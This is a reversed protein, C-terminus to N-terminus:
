NGLMLVYHPSCIKGTVSLSYEAAIPDTSDYCNSGGPNGGVHIYFRGQGPKGDDIKSDLSLAQSSAQSSTFESAGIRDSSGDDIPSGIKLYSKAVDTGNTSDWGATVAQAADGFGYGINPYASTPVQTELIETSNEYAGSFTGDVLGANSLHVWARSAEDVDTYNGLSIGDRILGNSNGNCQADTLGASGCSPWYDTANSMDGPLADYQLVFGNIAADFQKLESTISRLQAQTVLSSGASIGAVILGIIVIVISLELLTFGNSYGNNKM